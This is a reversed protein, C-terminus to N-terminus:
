LAMGDFQHQGCSRGDAVAEEQEHNAKSQLLFAGISHKISTCM